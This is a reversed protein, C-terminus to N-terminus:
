RPRRISFRATGHAFLNGRGDEIRGEALAIRNRLQIVGAMAYLEGAAPTPANLYSVQLDLTLCRTRKPLASNVAAAMAGDLMTAMAGGHLTAHNYLHTGPNARLTVRGEGVEAIKWGVTRAM